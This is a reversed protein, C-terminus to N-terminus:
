YDLSVGDPLPVNDLRSNLQRVLRESEELKTSLDENQKELKEVREFLEILM